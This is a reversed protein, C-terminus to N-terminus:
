QAPKRFRERERERKRDIRTKRQTEERIEETLIDDKATLRMHLSDTVAVGADSCSTEGGM